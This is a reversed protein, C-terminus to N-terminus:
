NDSKFIFFNVNKELVTLIVMLLNYGSVNKRFLKILM